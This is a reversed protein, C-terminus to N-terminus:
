DNLIKELKKYRIHNQLKAVLDIGRFVRTALGSVNINELNFETTFLECSHEHWLRIGLITEGFLPKYPPPIYDFDMERSYRQNEENLFELTEDDIEIIDNRINNVDQIMSESKGILFKDLFDM